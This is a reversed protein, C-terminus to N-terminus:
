IPLFIEVPGVIEHFKKRLADSPSGHIQIKGKAFDLTQFLQTFDSADIHSMLSPEDIYGETIAMTKNAEDIFFEYLTVGKDERLVRERLARAAAKGQETKGPQIPFEGRIVIMNM